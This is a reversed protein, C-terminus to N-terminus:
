KYQLRKLQVMFGDNPRICPRAKKVIEHANEFSLNDNLILYAIVISASRSVGANCHVLVNEKSKLANYIFGICGLLYKHLDTIDLDLMKVYKYNVQSNKVTPEVGLCLVHKINFQEFIASDCCDQSGLYLHNKIKAPIDDPKTDIVYGPGTEALKELHSNVEIFKQGDQQTVITEAPKLKNKKEQLQKLFSM